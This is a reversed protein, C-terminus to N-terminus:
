EDPHRDRAGLERDLSRDLEDDSTSSATDEVEDDMLFVAAYGRRSERGPVTDNRAAVGKDSLAYQGKRVETVLGRRELSALATRAETPALRSHVVLQEFLDGDGADMVAILRAESSRLFQSM